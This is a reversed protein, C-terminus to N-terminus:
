LISHIYVYRVINPTKCIELLHTNPQDHRDTRGDTQMSCSSELQVFKTFMQYTPVKGFSQLFNMSPYLRVLTVPLKSSFLCM